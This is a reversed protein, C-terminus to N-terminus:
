MMWDASAAKVFGKVVIRGSDYMTVEAYSNNEPYADQSIARLTYYFIGNHVASHGVHHHGTFVAKVKGSREFLGRLQAANKIRFVDPCAPDVLQHSFVVVPGPATDLVGEMWKVQDPPVNADRFDFNGPRYDEMKSTYNPDLVVFTVKGVSFSYHALAKEQGANSVHALFEAKTLCDTEHNGLAHYRPGNFRSFVKEIDDLCKLTAEKTPMMDKFDGLEILFDAKRANLADICDRLKAPADRFCREGPEDVANPLDAYHMDTAMGFHAIPTEGAGIEVCGAATGVAAIIFERRDIKNM